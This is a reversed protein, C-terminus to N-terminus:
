RQSVKGHLEEIVNRIESTKFVYEIPVKGKKELVLEKHALDNDVVVVIAVTVGRKREIREVYNDLHLGTQIMADIILIKRKGEAGLNFNRPRFGPQEKETVQIMPKQLDRAIVSGLVQGCNEVIGVVETENRYKEAKEIISRCLFNFLDSECCAGWLDLM